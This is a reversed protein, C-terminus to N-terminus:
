LKKRKKRKKKEDDDPRHVENARTGMMATENLLQTDLINNDFANEIFNAVESGFDNRQQTQPQKVAGFEANLNNASLLKDLKSGNVVIKENHDIFTVGYIRGQATTRFVVDIGNKKLENIFKNQKNKSDKLCQLITNKTKHSQLKQPLLQNNIQMRKIIWKHSYQKGLKSSYIPTSSPKGMVAYTLGRLLKGNQDQQSSLKCEINYLSLIATFEGISTYNYNQNINDIIEKIQTSTNGAQKNAVQLDSTQKQKKSSVAPILNYKQELERTISQSKLRENSDKIKKGFQDIKTSVIHIHERDIDNHKFVLYPQDEYGMKSMYEFAIQKLQEDNLKDDPHPNLSIHVITKKFDKRHIKEYRKRFVDYIQEQFDKNEDLKIANTDLLEATKEEVKRQNYRLVNSLVGSHHIKAIM